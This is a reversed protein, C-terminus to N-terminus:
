QLCSKRLTSCFRASSNGNNRVTGSIVQFRQRLKRRLRPLRASRILCSRSASFMSAFRQVRRQVRSADAQLEPYARPNRLAAGIEFEVEGVVGKPDIAIWGREDDYLVNDHHLDGHLLRVARQSACLALYLHHADDVLSRPGHRDGSEVYREFGGAWDGATPIGHPPDSVISMRAIVSALIFRAKEM